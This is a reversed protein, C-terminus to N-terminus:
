LRCGPRHPELADQRFATASSTLRARHSAVADSTGPGSRGDQGPRARVKTQLVDDDVGMDRPMIGSALGQVAIKQATEPDATAQLVPIAVWRHIAARSDLYYAVGFTAVTGYLLWKLLTGVPRLPNPPPKSSGGFFSSSSSSSSSFTSPVPKPPEPAGATPPLPRSTPSSLTPPPGPPPAPTSSSGPPPVLPADARRSASVHLARYAPAARPLAALQQARAAHRLASM